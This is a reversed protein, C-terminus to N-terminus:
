EAITANLDGQTYGPDEAAVGPAYKLVTNCRNIVDYFGDWVTYSNMANINERVVNYLDVDSSNLNQGSMINDSRVEGWVIMRKRVADSQLASYCGMVVNDVDAKENWFDELIIESQPKIELFDACSSLGAVAAAVGCCLLGAKYTKKNKTNM